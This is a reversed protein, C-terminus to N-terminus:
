SAQERAIARANRISIVAEQAVASVAILQSHIRDYFVDEEEPNDADLLMGAAFAAEGLKHVLANVWRHPEWTPPGVDPGRIAAICARVEQPVATSDLIMGQETLASIAALAAQGILDDTLEVGKGDLQERIRQKVRAFDPTIDPM